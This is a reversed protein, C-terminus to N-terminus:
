MKEAQVLKKRELGYSTEEEAREALVMRVGNEVRTECLLEDKEVRREVENQVADDRTAIAIKQSRSKITELLSRASM